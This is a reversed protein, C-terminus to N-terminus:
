IVAGTGAHLKVRPDRVLRYLLFAAFLGGVSTAIFAAPYGGLEALVGGLLPALITAPAILTNALGIYAPREPETGFELVMALGITWVAVNAIGALFFVLYFWNPHPAYWALLGSLSAALLGSLMVLRHSYRDGLWGMLPNAIIQVGLLVATMVGVTLESMGLVTVAYVTYFSFGLMGFQSLMRVALFWRFNNDRKLIAALRRSFALSSDPLTTLPTAPERTGSLALWSLLMAISALLFCVSFDLPSDVRTLIYGAAVASGTALLNAAASQIGYFTGRRDPPMIKAIMSQWPTATFGGGLAQWILLFFTLLLAAQPGIRPSIFAVLALGLFPLREQTSIILLMPKYRSQRSVRNAIFVQPLQWGVTHIAPILGILIPSRTLTSVFLPIITVFSAFGLALGFFAGDAVNVVYNFRLNKIIDPNM